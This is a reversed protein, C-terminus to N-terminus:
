KGLFRGASQASSLLKLFMQLYQSVPGTDEWFKAEAQSKPIDMEKLLAEAKRRRVDAAFASNAVKGDTRRQENLEDRILEGEAQTRTTEADIKGTRFRSERLEQLARATNLSQEMTESRTKETQAELNEVAARSQAAQQYAAVTDASQKASGMGAVIPNEVKAMAGAPTSAGGQSVALMPNLGAKKLDAVARQYASGSMREQFAMQERALMINQENTEEQASQGDLGSGISGGIMGGMPGGFYYGAATGLIGGLKM